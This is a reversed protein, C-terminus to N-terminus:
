PNARFVSVTTRFRSVHVGGAAYGKAPPLNTGNRDPSVIRQFSWSLSGPNQAEHLYTNHKGRRHRKKDRTYDTTSNPSTPPAGSARALPPASLGGRRRRSENSKKRIPLTAYFYSNHADCVGLGAQEGMDITPDAVAKKVAYYGTHGAAVAIGDGVGTTLAFSASDAAFGLKDAYLSAAQWGAGAPFIKSITVELTTAQSTRHTLSSIKERRGTGPVRRRGACPRCLSHKLGRAAVTEVTKFADAPLQAPRRVFRAALAM